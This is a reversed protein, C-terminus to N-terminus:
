YALKKVRPEVGSFLVWEPKLPIAYAISSKWSTLSGLRKSAQDQLLVIPHKSRWVGVRNTALDAPDHLPRPLLLSLIRALVHQPKAGLMLLM